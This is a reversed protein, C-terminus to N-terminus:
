VEKDTKCFGAFMKTLSLTVVLTPVQITQRQFELCEAHFRWRRFRQCHM